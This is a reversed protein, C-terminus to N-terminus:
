KRIAKRISSTQPDGTPTSLPASSVAKSSTNVSIGGDSKFVIAPKGKLGINAARKDKPISYHCANAMFLAVPLQLYFTNLYSVYSSPIMGYVILYLVEILMYCVFSQTEFDFVNWIINFLSNNKSVLSQAHIAVHAVIAIEYITTIAHEQHVMEATFKSKCPGPGTMAGNALPYVIQGEVYVVNYICSVVRCLLLFYLGLKIYRSARTRNTVNRIQYIDYIIFGAYFFSYAVKRGTSCETANNLLYLMCIIFGIMICLITCMGYILFSKKLIHRIGVAFVFVTAQFGVTISYLTILTCLAPTLTSPHFEILNSM